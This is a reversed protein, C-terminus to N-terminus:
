WAGEDLVREDGDIAALDASQRRRLPVADDDGGAREGRGRKRFGDQLEGAFVREGEEVRDRGDHM